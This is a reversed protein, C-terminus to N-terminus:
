AVSVAAAALGGDDGGLLAVALKDDVTFAAVVGDGSKLASAGLSDLSVGRPLSKAGIFITAASGSAEPARTGDDSARPVPLTMASTEFGLRAAVDAAAALEGARPHEAWAFRGAVSYVAGHGTRARFAAGLRLSDA